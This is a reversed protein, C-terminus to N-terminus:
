QAKEHHHLHAKRSLEDAIRKSSAIIHEVNGCGRTSLGEGNKNHEM